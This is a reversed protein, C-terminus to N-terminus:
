NMSNVNSLTQLIKVLIYRLLLWCNGADIITAGPPVMVKEGVEVVKGDRIVVSGKFTGKTITIITGNQIVTVEAFLPASLLGTLATFLLLFRKM